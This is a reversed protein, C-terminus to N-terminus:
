QANKGESKQAAKHLKNCTKCYYKFGYAQAFPTESSPEKEFDIPRHEGNVFMTENHATCREFTPENADRRDAKAIAKDEAELAQTCKKCHRRYNLQYAFPYEASQRYDSANARYNDSLEMHLGHMPCTTMTNKEERTMTELKALIKDSVANNSKASAPQNKKDDKGKDSAATNGTKNGSNKDKDGGKQASLLGPLMLFCFLVCTFLGKM